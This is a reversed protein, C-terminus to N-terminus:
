LHEMFHDDHERAKKEWEAAVEKLRSKEIGNRYKPHIGIAAERSRNMRAIMERSLRALRAKARGLQVTKEDLRRRRM